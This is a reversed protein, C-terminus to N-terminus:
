FWETQEWRAAGYPDSSNRNKRSEEIHILVVEAEGWRRGGLVFWVEEAEADREVAVSSLVWVSDFSM